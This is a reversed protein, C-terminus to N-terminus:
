CSELASAEFRRLAAAAAAHHWLLALDLATNGAANRGHLDAKFHLLQAVVRSRGSRAARHLAMCNFLNRANVDVGARILTRVTRHRGNAAAASLAQARSRTSADYPVLLAATAANGHSAALQLAASFARPLAHPPLHPMTAGTCCQIMARAAATSDRRAVIEWYHTWAHVKDDEDPHDDPDDPDDWVGTWIHNALRAIERVIEGHDNWIAVEMASEFVPLPANQQLLQQLLQTTTDVKGRQAARFLDAGSM